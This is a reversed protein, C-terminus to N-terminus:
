QMGTELSHIDYTLLPKAGCMVELKDTGKLIYSKVRHCFKYSGSCLYMIEEIDSHRFHIKKKGVSWM